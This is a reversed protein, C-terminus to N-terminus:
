TFRGLEAGTKDYYIFEGDPKGDTYNGTFTLKDETYENWTGSKKGEVYDGERERKNQKDTWIWTGVRKGHDYTGQVRPTKKDRWIAFAGDLKGNADYAEDILLAWFQWIQRPGRRRGFSFTESIHLS